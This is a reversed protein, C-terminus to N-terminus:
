DTEAQSKSLSNIQYGQYGATESLLQPPYQLNMTSYLKFNVFKVLTIYFELFTTMVRYDVDIPM